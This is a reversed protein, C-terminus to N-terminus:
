CCVRERERERVEGGHMELQQERQAQKGGRGARHANNQRSPFQERKSFFVGAHPARLTRASRPPKAHGGAARGWRPWPLPASPSNWGRPPMLAARVDALRPPPRRTEVSLGGGVGCGGLGGGVSCKCSSYAKRSEYKIRKPASIKIM